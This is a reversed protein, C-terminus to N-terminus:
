YVYTLTEFMNRFTVLQSFKDHLTVLLKEYQLLTLEFEDNLNKKKVVRTFCVVLHRAVRLHVGGGRWEGLIVDYEVERAAHQGLRQVLPYEEVEGDGVEEQPVEEVVGVLRKVPWYFWHM